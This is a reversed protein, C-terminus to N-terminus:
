ALPHSFIAPRLGTRWNGFEAKYLFPYTLMVIAIISAQLPGRLEKMLGFLLGVVCVSFLFALVMPGRTTEKQLFEWTTANTMAMLFPYDAHDYMRLFTGQWKEDGRYVFRAVVNWNTWADEGGHPKLLSSAWFQACFMLAAAGVLVSWSLMYPSLSFQRNQWARWIPAKNKWVLFIAVLLISISEIMSYLHFDLGM